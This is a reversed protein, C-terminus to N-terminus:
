LQRAELYIADVRARLEREERYDPTDLLEQVAQDDRRAAPWN